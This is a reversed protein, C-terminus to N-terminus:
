RWCRCSPGTARSRWAGTSSQLRQISLARTWSLTPLPCPARAWISRTRDLGRKSKEPRHAGQCYRNWPQRSISVLFSVVRNSPERNPRLRVHLQSGNQTIARNLLAFGLVALPCSRMHMSSSAGTADADCAPHSSVHPVRMTFAQM